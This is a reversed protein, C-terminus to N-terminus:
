RDLRARVAAEIEEMIDAEPRKKRDLDIKTVLDPHKQIQPVDQPHVLKFFIRGLPFDVQVDWRLGDSGLKEQLIARWYRGETDLHAFSAQSM